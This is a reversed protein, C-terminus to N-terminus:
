VAVNNGFPFTSTAPPWDGPPLMKVLASSYSGAVPIHVSVSLRPVPRTNAVAINSGFPCTSTAPPLLLMLPLTALASSYSGAVLIHVAVPLM